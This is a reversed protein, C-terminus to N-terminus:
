DQVPRGTDFLVKWSQDPQRRWITKPFDHEDNAFTATGDAISRQRFEVQRAGDPMAFLRLVGDPRGPGDGDDVVLVEFSAGHLAVGYIAGAAAVWHEGGNGDSADWDGLWWALPALAPSLEATSPPPAAPSVPAPTACAALLTMVAIAPRSM